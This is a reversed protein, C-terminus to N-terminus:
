YVSVLGGSGIVPVYLVKKLIVPNKMDKVTLSLIIDSECEAMMTARNTIHILNQVPTIHQFQTCDCTIHNSTDCDLVWKSQSIQVSKKDIAAWTQPTRGGEGRAATARHASQRGANSWGERRYRKKKRAKV